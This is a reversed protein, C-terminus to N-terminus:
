RDVPSRGYGDIAGLLVLVEHVIYSTLVLGAGVLWFAQGQEGFARREMLGGAVTLAFGAGIALAPWRARRWAEARALSASGSPPGPETLRLVEPLVLLSLAAGTAAGLGLGVGGVLLDPRGTARFHLAPPISGVGVGAGTAGLLVGTGVLTALWSSRRPAPGGEGEQALAPGSSLAVLLALALANKAVRAHSPRGPPSDLRGERAMRKM